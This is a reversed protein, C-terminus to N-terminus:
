NVFGESLNIGTAPTRGSSHTSVFRLFSSCTPEIMALGGWVTFALMLMCEKLGFELHINHSRDRRIDFVNRGAISGVGGFVEVYQFTEVDMKAFHQARERRGVANHTSRGASGM